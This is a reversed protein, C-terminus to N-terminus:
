SKGGKNTINEAKMKEKNRKNSNGVCSCIGGIVPLVFQMIFAFPSVYTMAFNIVKEFNGSAFEVAIYLAIATCVSWVGRKGGLFEGCSLLAHFMALALVVFGFGVILIFLFDYRGIQSFSVTYKSLNSIAFTGGASLKGFVGFFVLIFLMTIIFNILWAFLMKWPPFDVRTFSFFVLFFTFDGFYIPFRLWGELTNSIGNEFLPFFNEVKVSPLSLFMIALFAFMVFWASLEFIRGVANSNKIGGYLLLGIVPLFIISKGSEYLLNTMMLKQSSLILVLKAFFLLIYLASVTKAVWPSLNQSIMDFFSGGNKRWMVIIFVLVILEFLMSIVVSFIGDTGSFFALSSPFLIMRALPFLLGLILLMQRSTFHKM